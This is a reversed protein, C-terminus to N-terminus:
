RDEDNGLGRIVRLVETKSVKLEKSVEELAERHPRPDLVTKCYVLWIIRHPMTDKISGGDWLTYGIALFALSGQKPTVTMTFPKAKHPLPKEPVKEVVRKVPPPPAKKVNAAVFEAPRPEYDRLGRRNYTRIHQKITTADLKVMDGVQQTSYGLRLYLLCELYKRDAGPPQKEMLARIRAADHQWKPTVAAFRRNNFKWNWAM